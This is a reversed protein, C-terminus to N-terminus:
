SWAFDSVDVPEYHHVRVQGSRLLELDDEHVYRELNREYYVPADFLDPRPVTDLAATYSDPPSSPSSPVPVPMGGVVAALGLPSVARRGRPSSIRNM